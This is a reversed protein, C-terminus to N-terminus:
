WGDRSEGAKFLKRSTWGGLKMTGHCPCQFESVMISSGPGKKRISSEGELSWIDNKGDNAYFTSEDHTVFVVKEEGELLVPELVNEEQDGEYFESRHMYDVMRLAWEKAYKVVDEREHGDFFLGKKNGYSYGWEHLYKSITSIAVTGPVGLSSPIVETEIFDKIAVLLREAPKTRQMYEVVQMKVDNHSLFSQRKTQVGQSYDSLNNHELYEKVWSM